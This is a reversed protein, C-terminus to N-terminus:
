KNFPTKVQQQKEAISQKVNEPLNQKEALKKLKDIQEEQKVKDSM